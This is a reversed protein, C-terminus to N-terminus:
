HSTNAGDFCNWSVFQHQSGPAPRRGRCDTAFAGNLVAMKELEDAKLFLYAKHDLHSGDNNSGDIHCTGLAFARRPEQTVKTSKQARM